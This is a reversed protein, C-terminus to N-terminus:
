EDVRVVRGMDDVRLDADNHITLHNYTNRLDRKEDAESGWLYFLVAIFLALIVIVISAIILLTDKTKTGM